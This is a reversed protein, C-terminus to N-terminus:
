CPRSWTSAPLWVHRAGFDAPVLAYYDVGVGPSYTLESLPPIRCGAPVRSSESSWRSTSWCRVPRRAALVRGLQTDPVRCRARRAAASRDPEDARDRVAHRRFFDHHHRARLIDPQLAGAASLRAVSLRHGAADADHPCGLRRAAADRACARVYMVGIRKHDVSTIWERWIYPFYGKAGGLGSRRLIVALVVGAAALPIPEGIPIASWDLKGLM